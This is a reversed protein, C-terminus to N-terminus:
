DGGKGPRDIHFSLCLFEKRNVFRELKIYYIDNIIEKKFVWIESEETRKQRPKLPNGEQSDQPQLGTIIERAEGPFLGIEDLENRAKNTFFLKRL